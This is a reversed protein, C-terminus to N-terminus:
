RAVQSVVALIVVAAAAFVIMEWVDAAAAWMTALKERM